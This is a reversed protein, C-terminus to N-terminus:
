VREHSDKARTCKELYKESKVRYKQRSFVCSYVQDSFKREKREEIARGERSNKKKLNKMDKDKREKM